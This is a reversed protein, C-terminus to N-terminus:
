SRGTLYDRLLAAFLQNGRRTLHVPTDTFEEPPIANWLDIYNWNNAIATEGLMQRYQDYAWRPYFTNYRVDSNLGDGIFMPENIIILPITGARSGGGVLVDFALDDDTLTRPETIDLWSDDPEFDSKRLTIEEPIAQDLGTAAWAVGWAQLRLLDALERRRGIISEQVFSRDVFRSDSLDLGLDYQEILERVRNPNEYLLPHDLQRPRYFSQLTVPWLILDPRSGALMEDLIVMDKTLSMIPYGLNYVVIRRGDAATLKMENLQGALTHENPLFWGWIGSDGLLLVRFEDDAAPRNWVHAASMAPLNSLTLNFDEAPREGYPLRLRGPLISNYLSLNGLSELPRCAAFLLNLAVFLVAAKLFIRGITRWDITPTTTASAVTDTSQSTM